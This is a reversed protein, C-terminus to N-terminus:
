TSSFRSLVTNLVIALSQRIGIDKSFRFAVTLADKWLRLSILDKVTGKAVQTLFYTQDMQKLMTSARAKLADFSSAEDEFAALALYVYFLQEWKRSLTMGTVSFRYRLLPKPVNALAHVKSVRLWLDYDEANKFESRYGGLELIQKRRLMVSPHYMCNYKALAAKIEISTIPLEILHDFKPKAGMHYVFSGLVVVDPNATLYDLQVRLRNPLSEDDQDMRAVFDYRALHLGENLTSALGLNQPHFIARVRFDQAAYRRITAASTDTSRDDIILLEFEAYDQKLISEIAQVLVAGANYVPLLVSVAM